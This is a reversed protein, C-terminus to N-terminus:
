IAATALGDAAAAALLLRDGAVVVLEADSVRHAAALHVADYGRLAHQEALDGAHYTLAEDIELMELQACRAELAAAASRLEGATMREMRHAQALATRAEPYVLRVSAVRNAADWLRAAPESGAEEILLPVLASTDFYAIM